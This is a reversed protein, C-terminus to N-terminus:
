TRTSTGRTSSAARRRYAVDAIARVLKEHGTDAAITLIQGPQLNAGLTM